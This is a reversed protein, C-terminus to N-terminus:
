RLWPCHMRMSIFQLSIPGFKMCRMTASASLFHRRASIRHVGTVDRCNFGSFYFVPVKERGRAPNRYEIVPVCSNRLTEAGVEGLKKFFEDREYRTNRAEDWDKRVTIRDFVDKWELQIFIDRKVLIGGPNCSSQEVCAGFDKLNDRLQGSRRMLEESVSSIRQEFVGLRTERDLFRQPHWLGVTWAIAGAALLFSLFRNM